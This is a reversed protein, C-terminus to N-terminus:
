NGVVVKVGAGWLLTAIRQRLFRIQKEQPYDNYECNVRLSFSPNTM